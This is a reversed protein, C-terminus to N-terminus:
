AAPQVQRHTRAASILYLIAGIAMYGALNALHATSMGAASLFSLGALTSLAGSILMSLQRHPRLATTFQLAGSIIAWAGFATLTAAADSAFATTGIAIAATASIAANLRRDTFVSAIADILPYTALLAAAAFPLEAHTTPVRDGIAIVLAAAWVLALVARTILLKPM